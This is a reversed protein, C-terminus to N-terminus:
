HRCCFGVACWTGAGFSKPCIALSNHSFARSSAFACNCGNSLSACNSRRSLRGSNTLVNLRANSCLIARFSAAQCGPISAQELIEPLQVPRSKLLMLRDQIDLLHCQAFKTMSDAVACHKRRHVRNRNLNPRPLLFPGRLHLSARQGNRAVM